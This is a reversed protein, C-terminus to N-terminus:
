FLQSVDLSVRGDETALESVEVIATGDFRYAKRPWPDLIWIHPCGAIYYDEIKRQMLSMRDEPSLIEVVIWPPAHFIQEEPEREYVCVDPVRYRTPSIRIRTGITVFWNGNDLLRVVRLQVKAHDKEGVNRDELNGEVFDMDPEYVSSLYERVPIPTM